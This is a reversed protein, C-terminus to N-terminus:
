SRVARRLGCHGRQIGQRLSLGLCGSDQQASYLDGQWRKDQPTKGAPLSLDATQPLGFPTTPLHQLRRARRPASVTVGQAPHPELRKALPLSRRRSQYFPRGRRLLPPESSPGTNRTDNDNHHHLEFLSTEDPQWLSKLSSSSSTRGLGSAASPAARPPASCATSTSGTGPQSDSTQDM